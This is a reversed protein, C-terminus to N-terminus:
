LYGMDRLNKEVEEDLGGEQRTSEESLGSMHQQLKDKLNQNDGPEFESIDPYFVEKKSPSDWAAYQKIQPLEDVNVTKGIREIFSDPTSYYVYATDRSEESLDISKTDSSDFGAISLITPYLDNLQAVQEYDGTPLTDTPDIIILPVRLLSDDVSFHHGFIGGEGFSDGHDGFIIIVTNDYRGSQKLSNILYRLLDDIYRICARYMDKALRIASKKPNYQNTYIKERNNYIDRQQLFSKGVTYLNNNGFQKYYPYPPLYIYHADNLHVFHCFPTDSGNIGKITNEVTSEDRM